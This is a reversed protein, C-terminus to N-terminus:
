GGSSMPESGAKKMKMSDGKKMMTDHHMATHKMMDGHMAGKKMMGHKHMSDKMAGKHQMGDHSMTSGASAPMADQALAPASALVGIAIALSLAASMRANM